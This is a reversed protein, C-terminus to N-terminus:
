KESGKFWGRVKGLHQLFNKSFSAKPNPMIEEDSPYSFDKQVPPPVWNERSDHEAHATLTGCMVTDKAGKNKDKSTEDMSHPSREVDGEHPSSTSNHKPEITEAIVDKNQDIEQPPSTSSDKKEDTEM